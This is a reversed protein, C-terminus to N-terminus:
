YINKNGTNFYNRISYPLSQSFKLKMVIFLYIIIQRINNITAIM